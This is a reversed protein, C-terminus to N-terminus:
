KFSKELSFLIRGNARESKLEYIEDQQLLLGSLNRGIIFTLNYPRLIIGGIADIAGIQERRRGPIAHYGVVCDIIKVPPNAFTKPYFDASFADLSRM